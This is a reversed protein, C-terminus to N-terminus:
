RKGHKARVLGERKTHVINKKSHIVVNNAVIDAHSKSPDPQPLRVAKVVSGHANSGRGGSDPNRADITWKKKQQLIYM